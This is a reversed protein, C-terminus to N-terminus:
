SIQQSVKHTNNTKSTWTSTKCSFSKSLNHNSNLGLTPMTEAAYEPHIRQHEPHTGIVMISYNSKLERSPSLEKLNARKSEQDTSKNGGDYHLPIGLLLWGPDVHQSVFCPCVQNHIQSSKPASRITQKKPSTTPKAVHQTWFNGLLCSQTKKHLKPHSCNSSICSYNKPQM